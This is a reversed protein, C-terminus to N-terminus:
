RAQETSNNFNMSVSRLNGQSLNPSTNRTDPASHLLTPDVSLQRMSGQSTYTQSPQSLQRGARTTNRRLPSPSPKSIRFSSFNVLKHGSPISTAQQSKTRSLVGASQTAHKLTNHRRRAQVMGYVVAALSAHQITPKPTLQEETEGRGLVFYTEMEGKGKVPVLGRYEMLYGREILMMATHKPVQIRGMKGTSDMRSAENVTNGWIDYVPKRAGIVGGVLPGSSIGVRLHFNNFSHKNINELSQKMALAFDVLACVHSYGDIAEHTPNLGSAAMYCAGVTKIKEISGFRPESLLEDFDVIIENLLRICEMGKNVDESYFETFNPISAFMVGVKNRSQSYLEDAIRDHLFHHAVHDPLINRLLQRNNKRTERMDALERQAELKWLFDLRSTIEVLRAHYAVLTFFISLMLLMQAFFPMKLHKDLQPQRFVEPYLGLILWTYGGVMVLALATKVLFYVKLTTALAILCLVWTFVLHEVHICSKFYHDNESPDTSNKSISVGSANRKVRAYTHLHKDLAYYSSMNSNQEVNQFLLNPNIVGKKDFNIIPLNTTTYKKVNSDEIERQIRKMGDDCESDHCSFETQTNNKVINSILLHDPLLVLTLTSAIAMIAVFALIFITRRFRNHVLVSSIHQLKQPLRPLEEAMVLLVACTLLVTASVVYGVLANCRPLIATQSAVIFLWIVYCILMNSKFMDERLQCFEEEMHPQRFRLTWPSINEKRMRQNSEVEICHDMMIDAEEATSVDAVAENDAESREPEQGTSSLNEFPIEPTWDEVIGATHNGHNGNSDVQKKREKKVVQQVAILTQEGESWLRTRSIERGIKHTQKTPVQQKIIYSEIEHEKLYPDRTEGYGPEVEYANNLCGLTAKSIHVRGPIGGSEMHNALTVDYSWVDFQWKRLGLVGCLVSGSHIGIRMNLDVNLKNRVDKIAKIMHLGMEVCCAAHDPREEPLGSVCYYCDGLLKIRLCHNEMALKDFKAFLDNLVRVLEQASTQSAWATFGKIDAFLISVNEYCHIYIRHFQHPTFAGRESENAIDRIMERAVFDPLVSLLLKEQQENEKQTKFRTETSRHTELFAKRQSRDTLYKTYTGTFNVACYLLSTAVIQKLTCSFVVNSRHLVIATQLVHVISTVMGAAISWRLPLPLMAYTVFIIFLIYWVLYEPPSFGFCKGWLGQVNLTAWTALAAWHLYNNAFNRWCGLACLTVNAVLGASTWILRDESGLEQGHACAIGAVVLKVIADVLNVIILSRQRQRHSYRQYALELRKERFSNTLSLLYVGKYVKGRKFVETEDLDQTQSTEEIVSPKRREEGNHEEPQADHSSIKVTPTTSQSETDSQSKIKHVAEVWRNKYRYVKSPKEDAEMVEEQEM